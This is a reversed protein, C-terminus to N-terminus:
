TGTKGLDFLRNLYRDFPFLFTGRMNIHQHYIPAIYSLVEPVTWEPITKEWRNVAEQMKATNWAMIINTLLSLSGTIASLEEPRRGRKPSLPGAYIARQLTHVSEGQNLVYMIVKRFNPNSFFDCLYLTRNLKGLANGANYILAGKADSGYRDLALTASCWGEEISAAVRILGDWGKTISKIATREVVPELNKPVAIGRPVFLKRESLHALRPCLDFGLLKSIAMAFDTYGHTDVAVRDVNFLSQRIAGEIAAGAQRKNLVIPQDYVIGWKDLVHSYMGVAFVRRRPDVRATWLHRSTELSMMDSSASVGDGWNKTIPHRNFYALVIENAKRLLKEDEMFHTAQSVGDPAIGPVMRVVQAPTLDTGHALLAAYLYRLEDVSHPPRELMAWSFRTESDIELLIEPLQAEGIERYLKYRAQSISHTKPDINESKNLRIRNDEVTVAGADVAESLANLSVQISDLLPELYHKAHTPVSLRQYYRSKQQQWIEKPIFIRDQNRYSFSHDIWVSGNRISKRLLLLTAIEYAYMASKRDHSEILAKWCPAYPNDINQPL